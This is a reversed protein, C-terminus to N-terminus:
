RLFRLARGSLLNVRMAQLARLTRQTWSGRLREEELQMARRFDVESRIGDFEYGRWEWEAAAGGDSTETDTGGSGGSDGGAGDRLVLDLLYKLRDKSEFKQYGASSKSSGVDRRGEIAEIADM